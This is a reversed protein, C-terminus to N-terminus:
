GLKREVIDSYYEKVVEDPTMESRQYVMDLGATRNVIIKKKASLSDLMDNVAVRKLGLIKGPLGPACLIDDISIGKENENIEMTQYYKQLLYFFTQEVQVHLEPQVKQYVSGNKRIIGLRAFPSVKKDEPDYVVFRERVYMNLLVTVDDNLSRESLKKVESMNMYKRKLLEYLEEKSFEESDIENFFLYWSTANDVNCALNAHFIWLGFYDELYRDNEWIIQGVETLFAGERAVEYTFGGAKLWYRIAKAMNSGVGLADAGYNESFVRANNSVADMGKSLWGERLAFTEHGKLKM